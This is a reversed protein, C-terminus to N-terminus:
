DLEGQFQGYMRKMVEARSEEGFMTVGLNDFDIEAQPNAPFYTTRLYVELGLFMKRGAESGPGKVPDRSLLDQHIGYYWRSVQDLSPPLQGSLVLREIPWAEIWQAEADRGEQNLQFLLWEDVSALFQDREYRTIGEPDNRSKAIAENKMKTAETYVRTDQLTTPLYPEILRNSEIMKHISFLSLWEPKRGVWELVQEEQITEERLGWARELVTPVDITKGGWTVTPSTLYHENELERINEWVTSKEERTDLEVLKDFLETRQEYYPTAVSNYYEGIIAERPVLYDSEQELEDQLARFATGYQRMTLNLQVRLTEEDDPHLDALQALAVVEDLIDQLQYYDEESAEFRTPHDDENRSRWKLYAGENLEEDWMDLSKLKMRYKERLEAGELPNDLFWQAQTWPDNTGVTQIFDGDRSGQVGTRAIRQQLVDPPYAVRRGADLDEFFSDLDRQAPPAGAPGYFTIPQITALLSPYHDMFWAKAENGNPDQYWKGIVGHLREIDEYSSINTDDMAASYDVSGRILAAEAIERGAYWQSTAEMEDRFMRPSSASFFGMLGRSMISMWARDTARKLIEDNLQDLQYSLRTYKESESSGPVASAM